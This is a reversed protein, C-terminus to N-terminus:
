RQARRTRRAVAVAVTLAAVGAFGTLGVLASSDSGTKALPEDSDGSDDSEGGGWTDNCGPSNDGVFEVTVSDVPQESFTPERVPDGVIEDYVRLTVDVTVCPSIAEWPFPGGVDILGSDLFVGNVFLAALWENPADSTFIVEEGASISSVDATLTVASAPAALGATMALAIASIAGAKIQSTFM